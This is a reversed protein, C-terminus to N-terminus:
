DGARAELAEVRRQLDEIFGGLQGFTNELLVGFSRQAADTSIGSMGSLLGSVLGQVENMESM